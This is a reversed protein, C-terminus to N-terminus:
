PYSTEKKNHVNEDENRFNDDEEVRINSQTDFESGESASPTPTKRKRAPQKWRKPNATSPATKAKQKKPTVVLDSSGKKTQKQKGGEKVKDAEEITTRMEPTITHAGSSPLKKYEVLIKSAAPVCRFM